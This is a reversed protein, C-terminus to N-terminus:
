HGSRSYSSGPFGEENDVVRDYHGSSGLNHGDQPGHHHFSGGNPYSGGFYGGNQYGSSDESPSSYYDENGYDEEDTDHYILKHLECFRGKPGGRSAGAGLPDM